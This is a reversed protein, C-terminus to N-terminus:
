ILKDLADIDDKIILYSALFSISKKIATLDTKLDLKDKITDINFQDLELIYLNFRKSISKSM